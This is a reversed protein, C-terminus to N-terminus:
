LPGKAGPERRRSWLAAPQCEPRDAPTRPRWQVALASKSQATPPCRIPLSGESGFLKACEKCIHDMVAIVKNRCGVRKSFLIEGKRCSKKSQCDEGVRLLRFFAEWCNIQQVKSGIDTNLSIAAAGLRLFTASLALNRDKRKRIPVIPNLAMFCRSCSARSPLASSQNRYGECRKRM